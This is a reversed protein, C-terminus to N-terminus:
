INNWHGVQIENPNQKNVNACFNVGNAPTTPNKKSEIEKNKKM